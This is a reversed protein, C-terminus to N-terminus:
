SQSSIASVCYNQTCDSAMCGLGPVRVQMLSAMGVTRKREM